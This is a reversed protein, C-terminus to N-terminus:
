LLEGPKIAIGSPAAARISAWDSSPEFGLAERARRTDFTSARPNRAYLAPRRIEPVFGFMRRVLELTPEDTCSDAAGVFFVGFPVGDAELALRFARATDEPSVYYFLSRAGTDKAMAAAKAATEPFMVLLPRLCLVEMGRRAFSAGLEEVVQKSVAYPHIPRLPHDEDVPLYLPPLNPNTAGVGTAAVSSTLVVKRIGAEHAAQLVNWTGMVNVRVFEEPKAPVGLDIAALHVVADHGALAGRVAALHTVDAEVFAVREDPPNLDLVTVRARTMLDRVVYRGLRGSGGTVIVREPRM